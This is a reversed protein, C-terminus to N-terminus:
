AITVGVPWRSMVRTPVVRKPSSLVVRPATSIPMGITVIWCAIPRSPYLVIWTDSSPVALLRGTSASICALSPSPASTTSLAVRASSCRASNLSPMSSIPFTSSPKATTESNTDIKMMVLVKAMTTPWRVRSSPSSRARPASWRWTRRDTRPSASITPSTADTVPM